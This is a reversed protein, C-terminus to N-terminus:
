SYRYLYEGIGGVIYITWLGLILTSWLVSSTITATLTVVVFPRFTGLKSTIISRLIILAIIAVIGSVSMSFFVIGTFGNIYEQNAITVSIMGIEAVIVLPLIVLGYYVNYLSFHHTTWETIILGAMGMWALLTAGLLGIWLLIYWPEIATAAFAYWIFPPSVVEVVLLLSLIAIIHYRDRMVKCAM